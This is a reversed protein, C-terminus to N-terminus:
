RGREAATVGPCFPVGARQRAATDLSMDFRALPYREGPYLAAFEARLACRRAAGAPSRDFDAMEQAIRNALVAAPKAMATDRYRKNATASVTGAGALLVILLAPLWKRGRLMPVAAAVVLAGATSTVASDRWGQGWNGSAVMRQVDVNLSGLTAGLAVLAGGTVALALASRRGVASLRPLDRIALLALLALVLLAGALVAGAVWPRTSGGTIAGRWMLPPLWAILRVPFAELTDPGLHIDSGKYCPRTACYRQIVIRVALFVPLFGAWLLALPWIPPRERRVLLARALVAVTALPLALYAIENFAALAAGGALLLPIGWPRVRHIRCLVAAVALVLAASCFYLGGFLVAPSAGGAAVFGMAVAFPVVAAVTSPPQKFLPGRTVVSEALLMASVCLLIASVFSVLRFAVNAPLGVDGATYAALDLAKEVMRGFLRFNGLRLYGPLSGVTHPVIRLPDDRFLGGHWYINFRHDRAPALAILPALVVLPALVARLLARRWLVGVSM